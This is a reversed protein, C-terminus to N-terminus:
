LIMVLATRATFYYCWLTCHIVHNWTVTLHCFPNTSWQDPVLHIKCKILCKAPAKMSMTSFSFLIYKGAEWQWVASLIKNTIDNGVSRVKIRNGHVAWTKYNIREVVISVQTIDRNKGWKKFILLPNLPHLPCYAPWKQPMNKTSVHLQKHNELLPIKRLLEQQHQDTQHM